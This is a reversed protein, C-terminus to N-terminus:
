LEFLHKMKLMESEVCNLIINGNKLVHFFTLGAITYKEIKFEHKKNGYGVVTATKITERM